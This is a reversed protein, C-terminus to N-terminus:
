NGINAHHVAPTVVKGMIFAWSWRYIGSMVASILADENAKRSKPTPISADPVIKHTYCYRVDECCHNVTGNDCVILQSRLYANLLSATATLVVM